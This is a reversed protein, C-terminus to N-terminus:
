LNRRAFIASRGSTGGVRVRGSTGFSRERAGSARVGERDSTSDNEIWLLVDWHTVSAGQFRGDRQQKAYEKEQGRGSRVRRRPIPEALHFEGGGTRAVHLGGDFFADRQEVGELVFFGFLGKDFGRGAIPFAGHGMPALGHSKIVLKPIEGGVRRELFATLVDLLRLFKMRGRGALLAEDGRGRGEEVFFGLHRM